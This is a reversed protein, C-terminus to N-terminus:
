PREQQPRFRPDLWVLILDVVLQSFFAVCASLLITASLVAYDRAALSDAFLLGMGPVAFVVEVFFSGAILSSFLTGMQSVVAVLAEPLIWQFIVRRRSFGLAFFTRSADLKELRRIEIALLQGLRLLPRFSIAVVPLVYGVSSELRAVPFWSLRLAFLDVLIPAFVLGPLAYGMLTLREFWQFRRESLSASIGVFFIGVVTVLLALLSLRVTVALRPRLISWVEPNPTIFSRGFNGQLLDRLYNWYQSILSQDLGLAQQYYERVQTHLAEDDSLPNGPLFRLLFFSIGSLLLLSGGALFIRKALYRGM